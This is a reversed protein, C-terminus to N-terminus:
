QKTIFPEKGAFVIATKIINEHKMKNVILEKYYKNKDIQLLANEIESNIRDRFENDNENIKQKETQKIEIVVGNQTKDHPILM